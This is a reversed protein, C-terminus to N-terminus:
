PLCGEGLIGIHAMILERVKSLDKIRKDPEFGSLKAKSFERLEEPSNIATMQNNFIDKKQDFSLKDPDDNVVKPEPVDEIVDEIINIPEKYERYVDPHKFLKMAQDSSVRKPTGKNWVGTSYLCDTYCHKSGIYEVLVMGAVSPLSKKFLNLIAPKRDELSGGIAIIVNLGSEFLEVARRDDPKM